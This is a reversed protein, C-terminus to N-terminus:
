DTAEIHKKAIVKKEDKERLIYERKLYQEIAQWVIEPSNLRKEKNILLPHIVNGNTHQFVILSTCLDTNRACLEGNNDSANIIQSLPRKYFVIKDKDNWEELDWDHIVLTIEDCNPYLEKISGVIATEWNDDHNLELSEGKPWPWVAAVAYENDEKHYIGLRHKLRADEEDTNGEANKSETLDRDLHTKKGTLIREKYEDYLSPKFSIADKVYDEQLKCFITYANKWFLDQENVHSELCDEISKINHPDENETQEVISRIETLKESDEPRCSHELKQKYYFLFALDSLWCSFEDDKQLRSFYNILSNSPILHENDSFYPHIQRTSYFVVKKVSDNNM